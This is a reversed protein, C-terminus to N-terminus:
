RSPDVNGHDPAGVFWSRGRDLRVMTSALRIWSPVLICQPPRTTRPPAGPRHPRGQRRARTDRAHRRHCDVSRSGHQWCHWAWRQRPPWTGGAHPPFPWDGTPRRMSHIHRTMSPCLCLRLRPIAPGAIREVPAGPKPEVQEDPKSHDEQAASTGRPGEPVVDTHFLPQDAHECEKAPGSQGSRDTQIQMPRRRHAARWLRREPLVNLARPVPDSPLGSYVCDSPCTRTPATRRTRTTPDLIPTAPDGAVAPPTRSAAPRAQVVIPPPSPQVRGCRHHM